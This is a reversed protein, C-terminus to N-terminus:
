FSQKNHEGIVQLVQSLLNAPANNNYRLGSLAQLWLSPELPGLRKCCSLLKEYDRHKLYHRVILHYLKEEEYLVMVGDWFKYNRCLILVHNKDYNHENNKLIDILRVEIKGDKQWIYLYHEILTNYVLQSCNSTYKILHDLFEILYESNDFLNIFDETNSRDTKTESLQTDILMDNVNMPNLININSASNTSVRFDTCIKKVLAITEEPCHKMLIKGYKMMIEEANAYNLKSIYNLADRYLKLDETLISICADHKGHKKALDLAQQKCSNRCVRIAVDIDYSLKKIDIDLKLFEKLQKTKDLRTFCNLLLTTHDASAQGHNHLSQLYDTLYLIHRSDLFRRIM